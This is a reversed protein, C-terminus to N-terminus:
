QGDKPWVVMEFPFRQEPYLYDNDIIQRFTARRGDKSLIDTGGEFETPGLIKSNYSRVISANVEEVEIGDTLMKHDLPRLGLYLYEMRFNCGNVWAKLYRNMDSSTFTFSTLDIHICDFDMINDLTIWQELNDARLWLNDMEFKPNLKNGIQSKSLNAIDLTRKINLTQCLSIIDAFDELKNFYIQLDDISRQRHNLWCLIRSVNGSCHNANVAIRHIDTNLVYSMQEFMWIINRISIDEFLFNECHNEDEWNVRNRQGYPIDIVHERTGDFVFARSNMWFSVELKFRKWIIIIAKRGRQSRNRRKLVVILIFIAPPQLNPDAVIADNSGSAYSFDGLKVMQDSPMELPDTYDSTLYVSTSAVRTHVIKAFHLHELARSIQETFSCLPSSVQQYSSGEKQNNQDPRQRGKSTFSDYGSSMNPSGETIPLHHDIPTRMGQRRLVYGASNIYDYLSGGQCEEMLIGTIQYPINEWRGIVVGDFRVFNPHIPLIRLIELERRMARRSPESYDIPYKLSYCHGLLRRRHRNSYSVEFVEDSLDSEVQYETIYDYQNESVNDGIPQPLVQFMNNKGGDRLNCGATRQTLAAEVDRNIYEVPMFRSGPPRVKM